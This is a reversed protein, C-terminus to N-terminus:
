EFKISDFSFTRDEIESRRMPMEDIRKFVRDISFQNITRMKEGGDKGLLIFTTNGDAAYYKSRLYKSTAKNILSDGYVSQSKEFIYFVVLDRDVVGDVNKGLINNATKFLSNEMSPTFVLLLRNKWRFNDLLNRDIEQANVTELNFFLLLTFIFIFLKQTM